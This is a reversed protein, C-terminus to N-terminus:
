GLQQAIASAVAELTSITSKADQITKKATQKFQEDKISRLNILVNLESALITDKLLLAAIATDTILNSNGHHQLIQVPNVLSAALKLCALPPQASEISAAETDGKEKYVVMLRSFAEADEDAQRTFETIAVASQALMQDKPHDDPLTKTLNIVMSILAAAQAGSLAAAAGGGPTSAMSGLETLYDSISSTAISM